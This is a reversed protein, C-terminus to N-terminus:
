EDSHGTWDDISYDRLLSNLMPVHWAKEELDHEFTLFKSTTLQVDFNDSTNIIYDFHSLEAICVRYMICDNEFDAGVSQIIVEDEETGDKLLAKPFLGCNIRPYMGKRKKHDMLFDRCKHADVEREFAYICQHDGIFSSYYKNTRVTRLVLRM